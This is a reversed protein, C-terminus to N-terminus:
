PGWCEAAQSQHENAESVLAAEQDLTLVGFLDGDVGETQWPGWCIGVDTIEPDEGSDDEWNDPHGSRNGPSYWGENYEVKVEVDDVLDTPEYPKSNPDENLIRVYSAPLLCAQVSLLTTFTGM